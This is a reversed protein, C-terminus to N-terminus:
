EKMVLRFTRIDIADIWVIEGKDKGGGGERVSNGTLTLEEFSELVYGNGVIGCLDIAAGVSLEPDDGLGYQHAIRVLFTGDKRKQLTIVSLQPPIISSGMLNVNGIFAEEITKGGPNSIFFPQLPM